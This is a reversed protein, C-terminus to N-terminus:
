ARSNDADGAIAQQGNEMHKPLRVYALCGEEDTTFFVGLNAVLVAVVLPIALGFTFAGPIYLDEKADAPKDGTYLTVGDPTAAARLKGWDYFQRHPVRLTELLARAKHDNLSVPDETHAFENRLKRIVTADHYVDADIWGACFAANLKASFSSFPGNESFLAGRAKANGKSFEKRLKVELFKEIWAAAAILRGRDSEDALASNFVKFCDLPLAYIRRDKIMKTWGLEQEYQRASFITGTSM